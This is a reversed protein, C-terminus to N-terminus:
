ILQILKYHRRVELKNTFIMEWRYYPAEAKNHTSRSVEETEQWKIKLSLLSDRM